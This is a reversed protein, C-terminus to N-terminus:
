QTDKALGRALAAELASLFGKSSVTAGSIADLDPSNMELALELLDEMASAAFSDEQHELIEIDEIGGESLYVLINIPGRYGRGTAEYIGPQYYERASSACGSLTIGLFFLSSLIVTSLIVTNLIVQVPFTKFESLQKMAM